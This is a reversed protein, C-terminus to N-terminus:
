YRWRKKYIALLAIANNKAMFVQAM